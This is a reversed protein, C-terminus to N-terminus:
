RVSAKRGDISLTGAGAAVLAFLGGVVAINKFFMLQQVFAQDAPAAWYAHGIMTAALTFVALVFAALRTQFGLLLAISGVVEIVITVVVALTALPIGLSDFYGVTSEFGTLKSLGAPLFLAVILLRGLLNFVDYLNQM